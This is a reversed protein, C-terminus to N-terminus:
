FTVLQLGLFAIACDLGFALACLIMGFIALRYDLSRRRAMTWDVFGLMFGAMSLVIGMPVWWSTGAGLVACLVSGYSLWRMKPQTSNIENM